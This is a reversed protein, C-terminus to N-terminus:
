SSRDKKKEAIWHTLWGPISLIIIWGSEPISKFHKGASFKGEGKKTISNETAKDEKINNQESTPSPAAVRTLVCVFIFLGELCKICFFAPQKHAAAILTVASFVAPLRMVFSALIAPLHGPPLILLLVWFSKSFVKFDLTRFMQIAIKSVYSYYMQKEKKGCTQERKPNEQPSFGKRFEKSYDDTKQKVESWTCVLGELSILPKICYCYSFSIPIPWILM